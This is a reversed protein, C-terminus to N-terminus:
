TDFSDDFIRKLDKVIRRMFHSERIFDRCAYRVRREIDQSGEATMRFAIPLFESVKYLDAIDCTFATSFGTHVFGIQPSFGLALIAATSIGYLCANACTIARNIPDTASWNQRDYNRGKWEIDYERALVKYASRVRNGELGRIQNLNYQAPIIEQFRMQYLKRAIEIRKNEDAFLIVQSLLNQSKGYFEHGSAYFRIGEEGTWFLTCGGEVANLVAQHTIKTGPGLLLCAITCIPVPIRGEKDLIAISKEEQVIVSHETFLFPSREEFRSFAQLDVKM